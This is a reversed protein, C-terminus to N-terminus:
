GLLRGEGKSNWELDVCEMTGNLMGVVEITRLYHPGKIRGEKVLSRESLVKM